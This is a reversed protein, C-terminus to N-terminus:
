PYDRSIAFATMVGEPSHFFRSETTDLPFRHLGAARVVADLDEVWADFSINQVDWDSLGCGRQDYRLLSFYRSLVELTDRRIPSQWEYELHSLWTATRVFPPGEGTMAYALRVRDRTTCFRIHQTQSAM